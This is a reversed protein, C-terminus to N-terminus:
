KKEILLDEYSQLLRKNVAEWSYALAKKQANEAMTKLRERDKLLRGVKGAFDRPANARAIFGDEGPSVLDVVGGKNVVVAPLGSAFAELIVNGFTETTSPFVFLDASAYWKSLEDGKLFGPFLADPLKEELEEKMPGDGVIVLKFDHGRRRLIRDVTVLDQLDKEKVLRGVFLLVPRDEGGWSKRLADSRFSSSFSDLDVGREWLEINKFGHRRLERSVNQSPVYIQDFQNYFWRLYSWGVRELKRHFGYYTLYSVFHTHYSAVVKINRKKAYKLGYFGLLTPSVVHVLDPEYADLQSSLRNVYPIAFKYDTYFVFPISFIKSVRERWEFDEGPKFPSFCRFDVKESELTEILHLISNVVGDFHPPLADTFFAIKM